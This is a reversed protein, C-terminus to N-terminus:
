KRGPRAALAASARAFDGSTGALIQTRNELVIAADLSPAGLNITFVQKTMEPAFQSNECLNESLEVATQLLAEEPVVRSVLGIREAEEADIQRPTMILEGARSAGVLRPLTYSIGMDCGSVGLRIFQAGFRAPVSAIRLDCAAALAMGGGVASGTLGVATPSDRTRHSRSGFL